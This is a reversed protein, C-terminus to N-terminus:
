IDVKNTGGGDSPVKGNGRKTNSRMMWEMIINEVLDVIKRSGKIERLKDRIAKDISLTIRVKEGSKEIGMTKVMDAYVEDDYVSVSSSMATIVNRAIELAKGINKLAKEALREYHKISCGRLIALTTVDITSFYMEESIGAIVEVVPTYMTISANGGFFSTLKPVPPLIKIGEFGLSELMYNYYSIAESNKRSERYVEQFDKSMLGSLAMSSAALAKKGSYDKARKAVADKAISRVHVKTFDDWDIDGTTLMLDLEAKIRM